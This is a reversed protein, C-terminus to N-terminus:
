FRKIRGWTTALNGKPSVAVLDSIEVFHLVNKGDESFLRLRNQEIEFVSANGLANIYEKEQNMVGEPILCARETHALDEIFLTGDAKASYTAFYLNCGGFGKIENREDFQLTIETEPILPVEKGVLGFSQLKWDRNALEEVIGAWASLVFLFLVLGVIIHEMAKEKAM